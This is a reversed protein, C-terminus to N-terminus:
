EGGIQDMMRNLSDQFDKDGDSLNLVLNFHCGLLAFDFEFNGFRKDWELTFKIFTFDIWNVTWPTLVGEWDNWVQCSVLKPRRM